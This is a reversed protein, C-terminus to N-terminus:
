FFMSGIILMIILSFSAFFMGLAVMNYDAHFQASTHMAKVSDGSRKYEDLYVKMFVGGVIALGGLTVFAVILNMLHIVGFRMCSSIRQWMSWNESGYRFWSEEALAADYFFNYLKRSILGKIVFFTVVAWIVAFVCFLVTTGITSSTSTDVAGAVATVPSKSLFPLFQACILAMSIPILITASSLFRNRWLKGNYDERLPIEGIVGQQPMGRMVIKSWWDNPRKLMWSLNEQRIERKMRELESMSEMTVAKKDMATCGHDVVGMEMDINEVSDM